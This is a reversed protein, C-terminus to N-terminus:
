ELLSDACISEANAFAAIEFDPAPPLDAINIGLSKQQTSQARQQNSQTQQQTTRTRQQTTRTRQQTLDISDHHQQRSPIAVANLRNTYSGFKIEMLEIRSNIAKNEDKLLALEEKASTLHAQLKAIELSSAEDSSSVNSSEISGTPVNTGGGFKKVVKCTPCWIGNNISELAMIYASLEPDFESIAVIRDRLGPISRVLAQIKNCLNARIEDAFQQPDQRKRRMNMLALVKDNGNFFEIPDVPEGGEM